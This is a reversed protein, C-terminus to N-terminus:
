YIVGLEKLVISSAEHYLIVNGKEIFYMRSCTTEGEAIMIENPNIIEEYTCNCLNNVIQEYEPLTFLKFNNLIKKNLENRLDECLKPNLLNFIEYSDIKKFEKENYFYELYNTVKKNLELPLNKKKFFKKLIILKEKLDQEIFTSKQMINRITSLMYCFLSYTFLTFLMSLLRENTSIPAYDGYGVTFSFTFVYYLMYLYQNSIPEDYLFNRNVISDYNNLYENYSITFWICALLHWIFFFIIMNKFYIFLGQVKDSVLLEELKFLLSRFKVM